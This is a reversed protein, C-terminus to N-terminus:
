NARLATRVRATGQRRVKGPTIGYRERFTRTLHAQDAFGNQAAVEALTARSDMVDALASDARLWLAYQTMSCGFDRRFERCLHAPHIGTERALGALSLRPTRNRILEEARILRARSASARGNHGFLSQILGLVAEEVRLIQLHDSLHVALQLAGVASIAPGAHRYALPNRTFDGDSVLTLWEKSIEVNLGEAGDELVRDQHSEGAENYILWGRTCVNERFLVRERIAGALMVYLYTLEHCHRPLCDGARYRSATIVFPGVARTSLTEGFFRGAQLHVVHLLGV